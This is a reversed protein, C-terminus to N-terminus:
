RGRGRYSGPTCGNQRLFERHFHSADVFGTAEAISDITLNSTLLLRAAAALRSRLSFRHFSTGLLGRFIVNFRSRSLGCLAAAEPVSAPHAPDEHIRAMAPMIRSLSVAPSPLKSTLFASPDWSRRLMLFLQLVNLRIASQWGIDKREIEQEMKLGIQLAEERAEPTLVRPRFRAPPSFLSVWSFESIIEDGLFSPLFMIVVMHNESSLICRGHPEWMACLWVDGRETDFVFDEFHREQRGGLQVGVEISGHVDLFLGDPGPIRLVDAVLPNDDTLHQEYQTTEAVQEQWERPQRGHIDM